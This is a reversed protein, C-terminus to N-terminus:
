HGGRTTVVPAGGRCGASASTATAGPRVSLWIHARDVPSDHRATVTLQAILTEQGATIIRSQSSSDITGLEHAIRMVLLGQVGAFEGALGMERRVEHCAPASQLQQDSLMTFVEAPELAAEVRHMTLVANACFQKICPDDRCAWLWLGLASDFPEWGSPVGVEVVFGTFRSVPSVALGHKEMFEDFRM